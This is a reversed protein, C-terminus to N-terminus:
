QVEKEKPTIVVVWVRVSKKFFIYRDPERERKREREREREREKERERERARRRKRESARGREQKEIVKEVKETDVRNKIKSNQSKFRKM